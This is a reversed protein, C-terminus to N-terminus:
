FGRVLNPSTKFKIIKQDPDNKDVAFFLWIINEGIIGVKYFHLYWYYHGGPETALTDAYGRTGPQSLGSRFGQGDFYAQVERIPTGIPFWDLMLADLTARWKYPGFFDWPQVIGLRKAEMKMARPSNWQFKDKDGMANRATLLDGVGCGMLSLSLTLALIVRLPTKVNQEKAM